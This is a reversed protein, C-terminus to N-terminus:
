SRNELQKYHSIFGDAEQAEVFADYSTYTNGTEGGPMCAVFFLFGLLSILHILRMTVSREFWSFFDQNFKARSSSCRHNPPAHNRGRAAPGWSSASKSQAEVDESLLVFELSTIIM